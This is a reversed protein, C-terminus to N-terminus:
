EQSNKSKILKTYTVALDSAPKILKVPGDKKGTAATPATPAADPETSVNDISKVASIIAQSNAPITVLSLELWEWSKIDLGGSKMVEFGDDLISFGISVARVLQYKMSHIAEDVRDKLKGAEKVIPLKAEFPIGKENPEAFTVNGVPADGRHQWLLPMPTSFKAGMPRVIDGMRDATPTSAVGRVIVFEEDEVTEKVNLISYAKHMEM